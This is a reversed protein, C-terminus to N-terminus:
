GQTGAQLRAAAERKGLTRAEILRALQEARPRALGHEWNYISQASVGLLRGFEAASLGLRKRHSRVGRASFRNASNAAEGNPAAVPKAAARRLAALLRRLETLERKLAAIERRHTASSRRVAGLQARAERRSLRTIESRLVKGINMSEHTEGGRPLPGLPANYRM